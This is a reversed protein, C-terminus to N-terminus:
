YESGEVYERFVKDVKAVMVLPNDTRKFHVYYNSFPLISGDERKFEGERKEVKVLEFDDLNLEQKQM